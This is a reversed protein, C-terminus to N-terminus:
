IVDRNIYVTIIVRIYVAGVRMESQIELKDTEICDLKLVDFSFQFLAFRSFKVHRSKAFQFQVFRRDILSVSSVVFM